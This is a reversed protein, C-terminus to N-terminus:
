KKNNKRWTEYRKATSQSIGMQKGAEEVSLENRLLAFEERRKNVDKKTDIVVKPSQNHELDSLCSSLNVLDKYHADLREGQNMVVSESMFQMHYLDDVYKNIKAIKRFIVAVLVALIAILIFGVVM